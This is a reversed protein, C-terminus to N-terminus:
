PERLRVTTGGRTLEILAFGASTLGRAACDRHENLEFKAERTCLVTDGGWALPKDGHRVAGGQADIAEAFSYLRRMQPSIDPRLCRGPELRYWGRTIIAGKDEIGVAAMVSQATENCWSFGAGEPKLAADILVDFFNAAAPADATLKRDNIFQALAAETKRGQVGDIPNADYGALVLLRQIGALRAQEDNYDGEEALSATMGQESETPRVETFRALKQDSRCSRAAAIVFNGTSVCLDAHGSPALPSGGYVELARAHLYVREADLTGQLVIRCQGPEIRFWGRTAAATKDEFGIAADVVYSMRNCLRLDPQAPSWAVLSFALAAPILRRIMFGERKPM